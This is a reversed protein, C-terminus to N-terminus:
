RGNTGWWFRKLIQKWEKECNFCMMPMVATDLTMGTLANPSEDMGLTFTCCFGSRHFSSRM